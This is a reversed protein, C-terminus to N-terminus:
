IYIFEGYAVMTVFIALYTEVITLHGSVNKCQKIVFEKLSCYKITLILILALNKSTCHIYEGDNLFILKKNEEIQYKITLNM